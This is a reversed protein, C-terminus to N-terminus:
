AFQAQDSMLMSRIRDECREAPKMLEYLRLMSQRNPTGLGFGGM